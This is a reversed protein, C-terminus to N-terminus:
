SPGDSNASEGRAAAPQGAGQEEDVAAAAAAREDMGSKAVRHPLRWWQPRRVRQGWAIVDGLVRVSSAGDGTLLHFYLTKMAGWSKREHPVREADEFEAEAQRLDLELEAQLDILQRSAGNINTSGRFPDALDLCLLGTSAFVSILATFAVRLQLDNLYQNVPQNSDILFLVVITTALLLLIAWHIPPFSSFVAAIRNSRHVNLSQVLAAANAVSFDRSVSAGAVGHLMAAIEELDNDAVSGRLVNAEAVVFPTSSLLRLATDNGPVTSEKVIQVSYDRLSVLAQQRRQAHQATGFMGFIARRLLRLDCAEKNICARMEAQRNRLVNITTALLTGLTIAVAPVLVGNITPRLLESAFQNGDVTRFGGGDQYASVVFRVLFAVTDYGLFAGIPLVFALAYPLQFEFTSTATTAHTSSMMVTESAHGYIVTDSTHESIMPRVAPTPGSMMMRAPAQRRAGIMGYKQLGFVAILVPAMPAMALSSTVLLLAQSTWPSAGEM